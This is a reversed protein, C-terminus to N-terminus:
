PVCYAGIGTHPRKHTQIHPDRRIVLQQLMNHTKTDVVFAETTGVIKWYFEDQVFHLSNFIYICM